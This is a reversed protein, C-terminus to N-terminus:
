LYGFKRIVCNLYTLHLEWVLFWGSQNLWISLVGVQCVLATVLVQVLM